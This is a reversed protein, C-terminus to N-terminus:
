KHSCQTKRVAHLSEKTATLLPVENYHVPKENHHSRKDHLVLKLCMPSVLQPVQAKLSRSGISDEQVLFQVWTGQM